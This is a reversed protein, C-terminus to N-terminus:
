IFEFLFVEKLLCTMMMMIWSKVKQKLGFEIRKEKSNNNLTALTFKKIILKRKLM